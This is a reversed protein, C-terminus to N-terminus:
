IEVDTVTILGFAPDFEGIIILVDWAHPEPISCGSPSGTLLASMLLNRVCGLSSTIWCQVLIM